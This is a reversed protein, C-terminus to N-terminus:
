PKGKEGHLLREPTKQKDAKRGRQQRAQAPGSSTTAAVNAPGVLVPESEPGKPVLAYLVADDTIRWDLHAPDRGLREGTLTSATSM